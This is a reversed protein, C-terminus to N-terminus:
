LKRSKAVMASVDRLRQNIIAIQTFDQGVLRKAYGLQERAKDFAGTLIFYEARALHVGPIDGALGSTEALEFWIHPDNPRQKSLKELLGESQSYQSAQLMTEALEFKLPYNNPYKASLTKIAAFARDFNGATRALEIAAFQYTFQTPYKDLLRQLQVKAEKHKGAIALSLALGYTAAEPSLSHGDLESKFRKISRQANADIAILARARMLHYEINDPYFRSPFRSTRGRADAVRREALPHTLLFEPPRNRRYRTAALMREFMAPVANPDMDARHLTDIGVRDAEQENQRSFRLSNDIAVAQSLSMAAMGADGGVTAALILGALMGAMSSYSNAKQKAVNRAFHRQSLHALEHALVSSLQAENEAFLFLGTHVGVVGGPVAFANMTPNNIIIAELRRDVLESHTALRRLLQEIYNQLLPDKHTAVRSRFAKLWARGLEHEQQHSVVGSTTDGLMPLNIEGLSEPISTNLVLIFLSLSTFLRLWKKSIFLPM